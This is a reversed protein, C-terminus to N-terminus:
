HKGRECKDADLEYFIHWIYDDEQVTDIYRMKETLYFEYGTPISYVTLMSERLEESVLIWVYLKDKIWGVKLPGAFRGKLEVVGRPNIEYKYIKVM